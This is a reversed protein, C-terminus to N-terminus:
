LVETQPKNEKKLRKYLTGTAYPSIFIKRQGNKVTVIFTKPLDFSLTECIGAKEAYNIYHRSAKSVTTNDLDFIGLIEETKIAKEQGILLYM